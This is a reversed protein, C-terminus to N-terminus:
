WFRWGWVLSAYTWWTPVTSASKGCASFFSWSFRSTSSLGWAGPTPWCRALGGSYGRFNAMGLGVLPHGLFASWAKIYLSVRTEERGAEYNVWTEQFRKGIVLDSGVWVYAIALAIFFILGFIVSPRRWLGKEKRYCIFLWVPLFVILGLVAKRSGTLLTAGSAAAFGCVLVFRKLRARRSPLMWFYAMAVVALIMIWAFQNSNVALGEVRENVTVLVRAYEGTVYSYGGIIFAAVLFWVLNYSLIKRSYTLGAIIATLVMIQFVTKWNEQFLTDSAAVFVGTLCWTVWVAFFLVEGTPWVKARFMYALYVAAMLMGVVKVLYNWDDLSSVAVATLIFPGLLPAVVRALSRETMQRQPALAYSPDLRMVNVKPRGSGVAAGWERGPV